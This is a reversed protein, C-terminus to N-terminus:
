RSHIVSYIVLSPDAFRRRFLDPHRAAFRIVPQELAPRAVVFDIREDDILRLRAAESLTGAVFAANRSSREAPRNRPTGAVTDAPLASVYDPVLASIPATLQASALVTVGAPLDRLADRAADDFLYPLEAAPASGIPGADRLRQLDAREGPREDPRAIAVVSAAALSALVLTLAFTSVRWSGRLQERTASARSAAHSRARRAGAALAAVLTAAVALVVLSAPGYATATADVRPWGLSGASLVLALTVALALAIPRGRVTKRQRELVSALAIVGGALAVPWPLASPLQVAAPTGLLNTFLAFLGPLAGVALVIAITAAVFGVRRDALSRCLWVASALALMILLNGQGLWDARLHRAIGEGLM